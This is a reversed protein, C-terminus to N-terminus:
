EFFTMPGLPPSYVHVSLAEDAADNHLAHVHGAGFTVLEGAGVTRTRVDHRHGGTVYREVLEGDVVLVAACSGGHDHLGLGSGRPWAILWADYAPEDALRVWRRGDGATGAGADERCAADALERALKV